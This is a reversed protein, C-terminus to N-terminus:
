VGIFIFKTAISTSIQYGETMVIVPDYAGAPMRESHWGWRQENVIYYNMGVTDPINDCYWDATQNGSLKLPIGFTDYQSLYEETWIGISYTGAGRVGFSNFPAVMYYLRAGPNYANAGIHTGTNSGYFIPGDALFYDFGFSGFFGDRTYSYYVEYWDVPGMGGPEQWTLDVDGNPQITVSLSKADTAYDFGPFGNEDDFIIMAGPLGTFTFTTQIAFEVEYGEGLIMNTNNIGIPDGLNHPRWVHNILDMWKIYNANMNITLTFTDLGTIPELPLSFTSVGTQFTRTWKGVTRSTRSVEGLVNVARIIYYYEQPAPNSAAGTDNWMTRLPIPSPEGTENDSSTNVWSTGFDFGTQSTSRYILYYDIGPITPPDWYLVIDEGDPSVNIYLNPQQLPPSLVNLWCAPFYATRTSNDWATYNVRSESVINALQPGLNSSTVNFTVTWTEGIIIESVNWELITNGMGDVYIVDPTISASGDVYHIYDPLVDQIMPNSDMIDEDKASINILPVVTLVAEIIAKALVRPDMGDYYAYVGSGNEAIAIFTDPMWPPVNSCAIASTFIGGEDRHAAKVLPCPSYPDHDEADGILIIIKTVNGSRWSSSIAMALAGTVDEPWDDGGSAVLSNVANILDSVNFTLPLDREPADKYTVLGFRVSKIEQQFTWTIDMINQKIGDIVDAMSGTDDVVFVIDAANSPVGEKPYGLGSVSLTITTEEGYGTGLLNIEIPNASKNYLIFPAVKTILVANDGYLTNVTSRATINTMEVFGSTIGPPIKVIVTINVQSGAPVFIDPLGDGTTDMVPNGFEDLIIVVWGGPNSVNGIEVVDDGGQKNVITLNYQINAGREGYEGTDPQIKILLITPVMNFRWGAAISSVDDFGDRTGNGDPVRNMTMDVIHSSSWGAMDVLAGLNDYLYVNDSSPSLDSFFAPDMPQELYYLPDASTIMTGEPIIYERDGVIRYGSINLSPGSKKFLEVFGNGPLSPNFLIENLLVRVTSNPPPVDNASGFTPGLSMNRSWADIYFGSNLVKQVSENPLPDPVVGMNGYSIEEMLIGNQYFSLTDGDSNLGNSTTVNFVAYSGTDAKPIWWYGMLEGGYSSSNFTFGISLDVTPYWPNYVEFQAVVSENDSIETIFVQVPTNFVWGAVESSVDNHGQYTGNGNPVRHVSMGQLHPTNWGVMDLLQGNPDYLYVNDGTEDMNNFLAPTNTYDVIVMDGPNLWYDVDPFQFVADGVIYHNRLNYIWYPATSIVVIYGGDVASPYFMVENLILWPTTNIAPVDNDAGFTPTDERTWNNYYTQYTVDWYRSTSEQYLPDPAVGSTGFGVQDILILDSNFLSITDSELNITAGGTRNFVTYGGLPIPDVTWGGTIPGAEVSFSWDTGLVKVGGRPNYLEIETYITDDASFETILVNPLQDFVWGAALSTTDDYGQHTGDGDPMRSMFHGQTHVSSWGVMDLLAGNNAYLYVNDGAADMNAFFAPYDSQTLVYFRNVSNLVTGSPVTFGNDCVIKYGEILVSGFGKYMLEVYGEEQYKPNFMVRNLVVQPSTVVIGVNNEADWTPGSSANRLWENTYTLTSTDFHRAVSELDLPDPAVGDQGYSIRDVQVGNEYLTITDGETDIVENPEFYSYGYTSIPNQSWTGTLPGINASLSLNATPDTPERGNNFVEIRPIGSGSDRIETILFGTVVYRYYHQADKLATIMNDFSNNIAMVLTFTKSSDAPITFDNWGVTTTLNGPTVGSSATANPAHLREYLWTNNGYFTEDFTTNYDHSYYHTIPESAIASGFGLTTGGDDQAWYIADTADFGDIEDGEDGGIGGSFGTGVQSLSLELGICVGNLDVGKINTLRYQIIFWDKNIVSWATQNILIDYPYGAGKNRFSCLSKQETPTNVALTIGKVVEFDNGFVYPYSGYPDAIDISGPNHDYNDQDIVLGIYTLGYFDILSQYKLQWKLPQAIRGWDGLGYIKLNGIDHSVSAASVTPLNLNVGFLLTSLMITVM